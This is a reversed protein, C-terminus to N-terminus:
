AFPQPQMCGRAPMPVSGRADVIIKRSKQAIHRRSCYSGSFYPCRHLHRHSGAAVHKWKSKGVIIHSAHGLFTPFDIGIGLPWLCGCADAHITKSTEPCHTARFLLSISASTQPQKCGCADVYIECSQQAIIRGSDKPFRHWQM